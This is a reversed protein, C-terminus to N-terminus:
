KSIGKLFPGVKRESDEIIDSIYDSSDVLVELNNKEQRNLKVLRFLIDKLFFENYLKINELYVKRKDYDVIIYTGPDIMYFGDDLAFNDYYFDELSVGRNSLLFIDEKIIELEKKITSLSLSKIIERNRNQIFKTTYGIFNNNEDYVIDIPLLIRKTPIKSLFLAEEESLRDTRCYPKYIKIAKDKWIYVTGENGEGLYWYDLEEDSFTILENNIIIKM